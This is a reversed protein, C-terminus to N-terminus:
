GIRDNKRWISFWLVSLAMLVFLALSGWEGLFFRGSFDIYQIMPIGNPQFINLAALLLVMLGEGAILGSAYLMGSALVDQKEETSHTRHREVLWRIFGGVMIPLTLHIPLYIGMAFPMIPMGTLFAILAIGMGAFVLSWPLTNTMVGEVVLKMLTAQPAPMDPSGFGWIHNFMYLVLGISLSSVLVGILEGIQQKMPTAGLIFGTKLDQSTDGAIAVVICIVSSIAVAGKMGSPGTDGTWKLLLTSFILVTVTMGSILNNSSGVLGVTRASVTAFFFGFVAILVSGLPSVPVAPALWLVLIIAMIGAWIIQNPIDTDTRLHSKTAPMSYGRLVRFFNGFVVPTAKVLSIIGAVAIAGAGIYKIYNDWIAFSDMTSISVTAPYIVTEAGFLSTLPMLILWSLASGALIFTAVKSGCLYGVGLLAPMVDMGIGAGKYMTIETHVRTPFIRFGDTLLKCVAAIGLGNLVVSAKSGGEEGALLVESCATGEPYPLTGHAEVILARRLPIMFLGGLAGGCFAILAIELLSPWPLGWEQMLMFMAPLTFIAGTAVSEGASGITQVMNNELISDKKLIMRIIGMSLVAAPISAAVTMGVRLGLYANAAGFVVSLIGGLIVSTITFEQVNKEPPIFPKIPTNEKM